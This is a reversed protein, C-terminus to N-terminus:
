KRLRRLHELLQDHDRSEVSVELDRGAEAVLVGAGVAARTFEVLEVEFHAEDRLVVYEIRDLRDQRAYKLLECVPTADRSVAFIRSDRVSLRKQLVAAVLRIKAVRQQDRVHGLM